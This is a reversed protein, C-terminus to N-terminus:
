LFFKYSSGVLFHGLVLQFVVYAVMGMLVIVVSDAKNLKHYFHLLKYSVVFMWLYAIFWLLNFVGSPDIVGFAAVFFPFISVWLLVSSYGIVRFFGANSGRGSYWKKAVFSMFIISGFLAIVPILMPWFLFRSFIASSFGNGFTLAALFLNVLHPGVFVGCAALTHNKDMAISLMANKELQLVPISDRLLKKYFEM